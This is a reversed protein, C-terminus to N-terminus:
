VSLSLSATLHLFLTLPHNSFVVRQTYIASGLYLTDHCTLTYTHTHVLVVACEDWRICTATGYWVITRLKTFGRSRMVLAVALGEPINHIGATYHLACLSPCPHPRCSHGHCTCESPSSYYHPPLPLLVAYCLVVCCLMACCIM